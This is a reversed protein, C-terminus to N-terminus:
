GRQGNKQHYYIWVGAILMLALMGVGNQLRFVTVDAGFDVLVDWIAGVGWAFPYLVLLSGAARFISMYFIGVFFLDIFEPQFGAHHISYLAAALLIGPITGFARDFHKQLFGYFFLMEFIGTVMIYLVAPFAGILRPFGGHQSVFNFLLLGGIIVSILLMWGWHKSTIGMDSLPRKEVKLTYLITFIFGIGVVMLIDRAITFVLYGYPTDNLPIVALSLLYVILGAALAVWTHRTPQWRVTFATKLFSKIPTKQNM